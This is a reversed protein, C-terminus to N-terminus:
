STLLLFTEGVKPVIFRTPINKKTAEKDIWNQLQIENLIDQQHYKKDEWGSYHVLLTNQPKIRKVFEFVNFPLNFEKKEEEMFVSFYPNEEIREDMHIHPAILNLPILEAKWTNFFDIGATIQPSDTISWHNTRPYPFRNNGDTIFYAANNLYGYDTKRLLPLLLDGSFVVKETKGSKTTVQFSLLSAGPASEGHYVPYPIIKLEAIGEIKTEIGHRLEIFNVAKQLHPFTSILKDWCPKTAYVPYLKKDNFRYYSQIIWDIGLIHDIHPHTLVIAEPIRNNYKLLFPVIGHGGDILVEWKITEKTISDGEIEIISFSANAYDEGLNPSYFPHEQGLPVPWANGRGNIRLFIKTM